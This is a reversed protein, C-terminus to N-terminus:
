VDDVIVELVMLPLLEEECDVYTKNEYVAVWSRRQRSNLEMLVVGPKKKSVQSFSQCLSREIRVADPDCSVTILLVM